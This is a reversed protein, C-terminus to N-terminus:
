VSSTGRVRFLLPSCCAPERRTRRPLWSSHTLTGAPSPCRHSSTPTTRPGPFLIHLSYASHCCTLILFPSM